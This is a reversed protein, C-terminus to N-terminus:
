RSSHEVPHLTRMHRQHSDKSSLVSSCFNCPYRQNGRNVHQNKIHRKLSDRSGLIAGCESCPFDGGKPNPKGTKTGTPKRRKFPQLSSSIGLSRKAASKAGDDKYTNSHFKTPRGRMRLSRYQFGNHQSFVTLTHQHKTRVHSNLNARVKFGANCVPCLHLSTPLVSNAVSVGSRHIEAMEVFPVWDLASLYNYVVLKRSLSAGYLTRAWADRRMITELLTPIVTEVIPPVTPSDFAIQLEFSKTWRNGRKAIGQFKDKEYESDFRGNQRLFTQYAFNRHTIKEVQFQKELSTMMDNTVVANGLRRALESCICDLIVIGQQYTSVFDLEKVVGNLSPLPNASFDLADGFWGAHVTDQPVEEEDHLKKKKRSAYEISLKAVSADNLLGEFAHLMDVSSFSPNVPPLLGTYADEFLAVMKAIENCSLYKGTRLAELIQGRWTMRREPWSWGIRGFLFLWSDSVHKIADLHFLAYATAEYRLLQVHALTDMGHTLTPRGVTCPRATIWVPSKPRQVMVHIERAGRKVRAAIADSIQMTSMGFTSKDDLKIIIDGRNFTRSEDYEVFTIGNALWAVSKLTLGIGDGSGVCLKKSLIEGGFPSPSEISAGMDESAALFTNYIKSLAYRLRKERKGDPFLSCLLEKLKQHGSICLWSGETLSLKSLNPHVHKAGLETLEIFIYSSLFRDTGRRIFYWYRNFFRDTGLCESRLFQTNSDLNKKTPYKKSLYTLFRFNDPDLAVTFYMEKEIAALRGSFFKECSRQDSAFAWSKEYMWFDFNDDEGKKQGEPGDVVAGTNAALIGTNATPNGKPSATPLTMKKKKSKDPFLFLKPPLLTGDRLKFKGEQTVVAKRIKGYKGSADLLYVEQGPWLHQKKRAALQPVIRLLFHGLFDVRGRKSVSALTQRVDELFDLKLESNELGYKGKRLGVLLDLVARQDEKAKVSLVIEALIKDCVTGFSTRTYMLGPQVGHMTLVDVFSSSVKPLQKKAIKPFKAKYAVKDHESMESSITKGEHAVFEPFPGPNPGKGLAHKVVKDTYSREFKSVKRKLASLDQQTMRLEAKTMKKPAQQRKGASKVPSISQKYSVPAKPARAPGRFLLKTSSVKTIESKPAAEKRKASPSKKTDGGDSDEDGSSDSSSSDGEEESSEEESSSEEKRERRRAAHELDSKILERVTSCGLLTDCLYSLISIRKEPVIESYEKKKLAKALDAPAVNKMSSHVNKGMRTYFTSRVNFAKVDMADIGAEPNEGTAGVTQLPKDTETQESDKGLVELASLRWTVVTGDVDLKINRWGHSMKGADVITGVMGVKSPTVGHSEQLKVKTGYWNDPDEFSSLAPRPNPLVSLLNVKCYMTPHIGNALEWDLEVIAKLHNDHSTVFTGVGYPTMVRDGPLACGLHAKEHSICLAKIPEWKRKFVKEFEDAQQWRAFNEGADFAKWTSWILAMDEEFKAHKLGGHPTFYYGAKFLNWVTQLDMPKKTELHYRRHGEATDFFIQSVPHMIMSKLLQECQDIPGGYCLSQDTEPNLAGGFAPEYCLYEVKGLAARTKANLRFKSPGEAAELTEGFASENLLSMERDIDEKDPVSLFDEDKSLYVMDEVFCSLISTWTQANLITSAFVPISDLDYTTQTKKKASQSTEKVKPAVDEKVKPEPERKVEVAVNGQSGGAPATGNVKGPSSPRVITKTLVEGIPAGKFDKVGYLPVGPKVKGHGENFYEEYHALYKQYLRAIIYPAQANSEVYNQLHPGVEKWMSKQAFMKYGGKSVVWSYLKYMDFPIKALIPAKGLTMGRADFFARLSVAFSANTRRWTIDLPEAPDTFVHFKASPLVWEATINSEKLLTARKATSQATSKDSPKLPVSLRPGEDSNSVDLFGVSGNIGSELDYHENLARRYAWRQATDVGRRKKLKAQAVASFVGKQSTRQEMFIARLLSIHLQAILYSGRRVIDTNRKNACDYSHHLYVASVLDGLQVKKIKLAQHFLNFSECVHVFSWLMSPHVNLKVYPPKKAAHKSLRIGNGSTKADNRRNPLLSVTTVGVMGEEDLYDPEDFNLPSRKPLHILAARDYARAAETATPFAGLSRAYTGVFIEALWKNEQSAEKQLVAPQGVKEDKRLKRVGIFKNLDGAHKRAHASISSETRVAGTTRNDGAITPDIWLSLAGPTPFPQATATTDKELKELIVLDDFPDRLDKPAAQKAPTAARTAKRGKISLKITMKPKNPSKKQAALEKKMKAELAKEKSRRQKEEREKKKQEEKGKKKAEREQKLAQKAKERELKLREKEQRKREAEAEKKQRKAADALKKAERAENWQVKRKGLVTALSFIYHATKHATNLPPPFLRVQSAVLDGYSELFSQDTGAVSLAQEVFLQANKKKSKLSRGSKSTADVKVAGDELLLSKLAALFAAGAASAEFHPAYETSPRLAATSPRRRTDFISYFVGESSKLWRRATGGRGKQFDVTDQAVKPICAGPQLFATAQGTPGAGGGLFFTDCAGEAGPGFVALLAREFRQLIIRAVCWIESGAANYRCCNEFILRVDEAFANCSAYASALVKKRVTGLDMPRAVVKFYDTLGLAKPDVPALFAACFPDGVMADIVEKMAASRDNEALAKRGAKKSAWAELVLRTTVAELEDAKGNMAECEGAGLTRGMCYYSRCNAWLLNLDLLFQMAVPRKSSEVSAVDWYEVFLTEDESRYRGEKLGKLLEGLGMPEEVFSAYDPCDAAQPPDRFAEACASAAVRTLVAAWEGATLLPPVASRLPFVRYAGNARVNARLNQGSSSGQISMLGVMEGTENSTVSFDDLCRLISLDDPNFLDFSCPCPTDGHYLAAPGNPVKPTPM